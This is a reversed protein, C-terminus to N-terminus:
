CWHLFAEIVPYIFKSTLTLFLLCSVFLGRGEHTKVQGVVLQPGSLAHTKGSCIIWIFFIECLQALHKPNLQNWFYDLPDGPKNAVVPLLYNAYEFHQMNKFSENYEKVSDM